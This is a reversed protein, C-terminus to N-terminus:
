AVPIEQVLIIRRPTERSGPCFPSPFRSWGSCSQLVEGAPTKGNRERGQWALWNLFRYNKSCKVLGM